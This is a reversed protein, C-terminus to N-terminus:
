ALVEDWFDILRDVTTVVYADGISRRPRKMVVLPHVLHHPINRAAGYNVAETAAEAIYGSLDFKKEAKAEVVFHYLGRRLVLDGEDKKGALHLREAEVGNARLHGLLGGEFGAGVRRNYAPNSM